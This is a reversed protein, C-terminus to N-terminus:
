GYKAKLREYTVRESKRSQAVYDECRRVRAAVQAESELGYYSVRLTTSEEYGGELEVKASERKDAPIKAVAQSILYTFDAVSWEGSYECLTEVRCEKPKDFDPGAYAQAMRYGDPDNEFATVGDGGRGRHRICWSRDM